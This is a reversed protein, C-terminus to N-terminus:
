TAPAEDVQAERVVWNTQDRLIVLTVLSREGPTEDVLSGDPGYELGPSQNVLAEVSFFDESVEVGAVSEFEVLGGESWNGAAVQEEVNTIVSACFICERHSLARWETLDNTAYVYAYLQLFYVAAAEAGAASVEDM